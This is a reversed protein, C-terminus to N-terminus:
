HLRFWTNLFANFRYRLGDGAILQAAFADLVIQTSAFTLTTITQTTCIDQTQGNVPNPPLTLTLAVVPGVPDLIYTSIKNPLVANAGSSDFQVTYPTPPSSLPM